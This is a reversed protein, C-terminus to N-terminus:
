WTDNIKDISDQNYLIGNKDIMKQENKDFIKKKKKTPYIKIRIM